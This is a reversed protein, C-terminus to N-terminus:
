LYAVTKKGKFYYALQVYYLFLKLWSSNQFIIFSFM